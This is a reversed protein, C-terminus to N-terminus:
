IITARPKGRAESPKVDRQNRAESSREGRVESPEVDRNKASIARRLHGRVESPEVDRNKASVAVGGRRGNNRQYCRM